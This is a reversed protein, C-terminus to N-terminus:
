KEMGILSLRVLFSKCNVKLSSYRRSRRASERLTLQTARMWFPYIWPAFTDVAGGGGAAISLLLIRMSSESNFRDVLAARETLPVSGHLKGCIYGKNLLGTEVLDLMRTFQSFVLVKSADGTLSLEHLIAKLKSSSQKERQAIELLLHSDFEVPRPKSPLQTQVEEIYCAVCQIDRGLISPQADTLQVYCQGHFVHRCINSRVYEASVPRSCLACSVEGSSPMAPAVMTWVYTRASHLALQTFNLAQRLEMIMSLIRGRYQLITGEDIMVKVEKIYQEEISNYFSRENSDLAVCRTQEILLPMKIAVEDKTRRQMVRSTM